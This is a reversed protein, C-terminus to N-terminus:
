PPTHGTQKEQMKTINEANNPYYSLPARLITNAQDTFETTSGHIQVSMGSFISFELADMRHMMIYLTRLGPHHIDAARVFELCRGRLAKMKLM